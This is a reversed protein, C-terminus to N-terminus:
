VSGTTSAAVLIAISAVRLVRLDRGLRGIAFGVTHPSSHAYALALSPVRGVAYVIASLLCMALSPKLAAALFMAGVQVSVTVHTLVTMGLQLGFLFAYTSTGCRTRLSEPVQGRRHPLARQWGADFCIWALAGAVLVLRVVTSPADRAILVAIALLLTVAFRGAFVGVLHVGAARRFATGCVAPSISQAM